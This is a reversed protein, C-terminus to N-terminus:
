QAGWMRWARLFEREARAPEWYCLKVHAAHANSTWHASWGRGKSAVLQRAETLLMRDDARSVDSAVQESPQAGLFADYIIRECRAVYQNYVTLMARLPRSLDGYYAEAADHLLYAPKAADSVLALGLVSHEAVSYFRRCHGAYRCQKSLAAAIDTIRIMSAAPRSLDFSMGSYTEICNDANM